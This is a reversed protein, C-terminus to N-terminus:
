ASNIEADAVILVRNIVDLMGNKSGSVLEPHCWPSTSVNNNM